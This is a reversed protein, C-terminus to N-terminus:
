NLPNNPWASQVVDQMASQTCTIDVPNMLFIIDFYFTLSISSILCQKHSCKSKGTLSYGVTKLTACCFKFTSLPFPYKYLMLHYQSHHNVQYM